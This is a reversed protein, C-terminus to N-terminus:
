AEEPPLLSKLFKVERKAYRITLKKYHEDLDENEAYMWRLHNITTGEYPTLDCKRHKHNKEYIPCGVCENDYFLVCLPCSEVGLLMQHPEEALTNKEWKKISKQLAKITRKKM